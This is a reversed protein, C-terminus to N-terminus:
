AVEMFATCIRVGEYADDTYADSGVTEQWRDDVPLGGLIVKVSDRLGAEELAQVTHIMSNVSMTLIGSMGLIHARDRKVAEVFDAPSVDIGLDNVAFGANRALAVFINKGIDHLDGEVTGVVIKGCAEQEGGSEAELAPRLLVMSQKFIEAAFVLDALYYEQSSYRAGVLNMGESLAGLVAQASEGADLLGQVMELTQQEEMEVLAKTVVELQSM